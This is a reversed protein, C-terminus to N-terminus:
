KMLGKRFRTCHMNDVCTLHGNSQYLKKALHRSGAGSGYGFDLITENGRIGLQNMYDNLNVEM